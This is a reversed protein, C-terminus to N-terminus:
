MSPRFTSMAYRHAFQDVSRTPMKAVSSTLSFTSTITTVPPLTAARAAFFTTVVIGM